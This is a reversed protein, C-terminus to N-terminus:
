CRFERFLVYTTLCFFFFPFLRHWSFALVMGQSGSDPAVVDEDDVLSRGLAGVFLGHRHRPLEFKKSLCNLINSGPPLFCGIQEVCGFIHTVPCASKRNSLSLNSYAGFRHLLQIACDFKRNGCNDRLTHLRTLLTSIQQFSLFIRRIKRQSVLDLSSELAMKCFRTALCPLSSQFRSSKTFNAIEIRYHPFVKKMTAVYAPRSANVSVRSRGASDAMFKFKDYDLPGGGQFVNHLRFPLGVDRLKCELDRIDARDIDRFSQYYLPPLHHTVCDACMDRVANFSDQVKLCDHNPCSFLQEFRAAVALHRHSDPNYQVGSATAPLGYALSLLKATTSVDLRPSPDKPSCLAVEVDAAEGSGDFTSVLNSLSMMSSFLEVKPLFADPSEKNLLVLAMMFSSGTLGHLFADHYSYYYSNKGLGMLLDLIKASIGVISYFYKQWKHPGTARREVTLLMNNVVSSNNDIENSFNYECDLLLNILAPFNGCAIQTFFNSEHVIISALMVPALLSRSGYNLESSTMRTKLGAGDGGDDSLSLGINLCRVAKVCSDHTDITHFDESYKPAPQRDYERPKAERNNVRVGTSFSTYDSTALREVSGDAAAAAGFISTLEDYAKSSGKGGNQYCKALEHLAEYFELVSHRVADLAILSRLDRKTLFESLYLPKLIKQIVACLNLLTSLDDKSPMAFSVHDDPVSHGAATFDDKCYTSDSIRVLGTASVTCQRAVMSIAALLSPGHKKVFYPTERKLPDTTIFTYMMDFRRGAGKPLLFKQDCNPILCGRISAASGTGVFRVELGSSHLLLHLRTTVEDCANAYALKWALEDLETSGRHFMLCLLRRVLKDFAAALKKAQGDGAEMRVLLCNTQLVLVQLLFFRVPYFDTETLSAEALKVALPQVRELYEVTKVTSLQLEDRNAYASEANICFLALGPLELASLGDLFSTNRAM